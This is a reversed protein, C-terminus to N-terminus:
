FQYKPVLLSPEQYILVLISQWVYEPVLIPSATNIIPSYLVQYSTDVRDQTSM